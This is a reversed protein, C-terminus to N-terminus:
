KDEKNDQIKADEEGKAKKVVQKDRQKKEKKKKKALARQRLEEEWDRGTVALGRKRVSKAAKKEQKHSGQAKL